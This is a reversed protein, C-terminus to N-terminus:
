RPRKPEHVILLAANVGLADALRELTAFDVGRTRGREMDSVTATRVCSLRALEAQSLGRAERLERIRLTIPMLCFM